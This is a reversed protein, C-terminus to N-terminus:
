TNRVNSGQIKSVSKIQEKEEEDDEDEDDNTLMDLDIASCM